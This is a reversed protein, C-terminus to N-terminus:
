KRSSRKSVAYSPIVKFYWFHCKLLFMEFTKSFIVKKKTMYHVLKAKTIFATIRLPQFSTTPTYFLYIFFFCFHLFWKKLCFVSFKWRQNHHSSLNSDRNRNKIAIFPYGLLHTHFRILYRGVRLHSAQSDEHFHGMISIPTLACLTM